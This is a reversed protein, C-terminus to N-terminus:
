RTAPARRAMDRMGIGGDRRVGVREQALLSQVCPRVAVVDGREGLLVGAQGLDARLDFSPEVPSRIGV